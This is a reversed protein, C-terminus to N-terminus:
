HPPLSFIYVSRLRYQPWSSQFRVLHMGSIRVFSSSIYVALQFLWQSSSQIGVLRMLSLTGSFLASFFVGNVIACVVADALQVM